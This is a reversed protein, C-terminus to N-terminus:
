IRKIIYTIGIKVHKITEFTKFWKGCIKFQFSLKYIGKSVFNYKLPLNTFNISKELEMTKGDPTKLTLLKMKYTQVFEDFSAMFNFQVLSSTEKHYSLREFNLYTFAILQSKMLNTSTLYFYINYDNRYCPFEFEIINTNNVKKNLELNDITSSVNM